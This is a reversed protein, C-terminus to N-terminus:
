WAQGVEDAPTYDVDSEGGSDEKGRPTGVSSCSAESGNANGHEEQLCRLVLEPDVAKNGIIGLIAERITNSLAPEEPEVFTGGADPLWVGDELLKNVVDLGLTARTVVPPKHVGKDGGTM